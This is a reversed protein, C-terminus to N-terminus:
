WTAVAYCFFCFLSTQAVSKHGCVRAHKSVRGWPLHGEYAAGGKEGLGRPPQQVDVVVASQVCALASGFDTNITTVCSTRTPHPPSSLRIPWMLHLQM